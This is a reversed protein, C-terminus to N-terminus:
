LNLYDLAEQYTDFFHEEGDEFDTVIYDVDQGFCSAVQIGNELVVYVYGSSTNFGADTMEEKSVHERCAKLVLELSEKDSSGLQNLFQITEM